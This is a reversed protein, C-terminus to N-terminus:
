RLLIDRTSFRHTALFKTLLFPLAILLPPDTLQKPRLTVETYGDAKGDRVILPGTTGQLATDTLLYSLPDESLNLAAAFIYYCGDPVPTMWYTGPTTLLTCSTPQNQPIPKSFLGVFIVGSFFKSVKVCGTFGDDAPITCSLDKVHSYLNDFYSPTFQTAFHRFHRPSLGVLQTFRTTFTGLSNYGVAYCVDSIS